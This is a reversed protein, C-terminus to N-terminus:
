LRSFAGFSYKLDYINSMDSKVYYMAWLAYQISDSVSQVHLIVTILLDSITGLQKTEKNLYM